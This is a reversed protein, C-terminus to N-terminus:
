VKHSIFDYKDAHWYKIYFYLKQWMLRIEYPIIKWGALEINFSRCMRKGLTIRMALTIILALSAIAVIIWQMTIAGYTAGLILLLYNLHLAIQDIAYIWKHAGMRHLHQRTALYYLQKNLWEKRTPVRETLTAENSNEYCAKTTKGYSNVLFDYEGRLFKLNSRFGEHTDFTQKCFLLANANSRLPKGKQFARMIYADTHLREFKWFDKTDAEYQTHGVILEYGEQTHRMMTGLWSPTLPTCFIDAIVIWDHKAAKVGLTIALKKRSMYRSSDPIFTTYLRANTAYKKLVHATEKDGKPAVVIVEYEPYDQDLYASLNQALADVDDSPTLVISVGAKQTETAEKNEEPATEETRLRMPRRFFPNLLPTLVASLLLVASLVITINDIVIM